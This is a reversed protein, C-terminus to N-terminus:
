WGGSAGGGGFSGGGGSFGGGGFGGSGFGGGGGFGGRYRSGSVAAPLFLGAMPWFFLVLLILLWFKNSKISKRPQKVVYQGGLAEIIASVGADIGKEFQGKKFAPEIVTHIINSSIADTLLGELGYGVEIRIKREARAVLLIVGNNKGKEGIGWHRGLQYGFQAIPYGQLDKVTAVVIQNGTANEHTQLQQILQTEAPASLFAGDDVVRGTLAPFAPEAYSNAIALLSVSLIIVLGLRQWATIPSRHSPLHLAKIM